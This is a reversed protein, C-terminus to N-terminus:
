MVTCASCVACPKADEGEVVFEVPVFGNHSASPAAGQKAALRYSGKVSQNLKKIKPLQNQKDSQNTVEIDKSSLQMHADAPTQGAWTSELLDKHRRPEKACSHLPVIHHREKDTGVASKLGHQTAVQMSLWAEFQTWFRCSYQLDYLILVTAGLYIMNIRPLMVDFAAADEETRVVNCDHKEGIEPIGQQPM